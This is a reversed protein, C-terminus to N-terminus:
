PLLPVEAQQEPALRQRDHAIADRRHRDGERHEADSRGGVEADDQGGTPDREREERQRAAHPGIADAPALDHEGGVDHARDGLGAVATSSSV